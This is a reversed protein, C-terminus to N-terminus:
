RSLPCRDHQYLGRALPCFLADGLDRLLSGPLKALLGPLMGDRSATAM